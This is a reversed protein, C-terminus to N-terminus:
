AASEDVDDAGTEEAPAVQHQPQGRLPPPYNVEVLRRRRPSVGQADVLLQLLAELRDMRANIEKMQTQNTRILKAMRTELEEIETPEGEQMFMM